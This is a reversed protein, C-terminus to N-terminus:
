DRRSRSYHMLIYSSAGSAAAAFTFLTGSSNDNRVTFAHCGKELCAGEILSYSLDYTEHADPPATTNLGTCKLMRIGGCGFSVPTCAKTSVFSSKNTDQFFKFHTWIDTEHGLGDISYRPRDIFTDCAFLGQGNACGFVQAGLTMISANYAAGCPQMVIAETPSGQIDTGPLMFFREPYPVREINNSALGVASPSIKLNYTRFPPAIDYIYPTYLTGFSGVANVSFAICSPNQDCAQAILFPPLLYTAIPQFNATLSAPGTCQLYTQAM